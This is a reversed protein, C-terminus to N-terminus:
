FIKFLHEFKDFTKVMGTSCILVAMATQRGTQVFRVKHVRAREGSPTSAISAVGTVESLVQTSKKLINEPTDASQILKEEIYQNIVDVKPAKDAESMKVKKELLDRVAAKM